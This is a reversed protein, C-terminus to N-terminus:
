DHPKEAYDLLPSGHQNASEKFRGDRADYMLEVDGPKGLAYHHRSKAVRILSNGNAQRHVVIVQDPKNYWHSSDSIDYASPIPYRGDKDKRMKAPHAVVMVHVNFRRAFRKFAKIAKGTYQTLSLMNQDYVHDIENWPDIVIMKAGNRFVAAGMRDTLWAIDFWEDSEDDPVIFSFNEQLWDDGEALQVESIDRFSKQHYLTQLSRRHETQPPQEFSAFCVHWGHQSAMNFALNNVFTTKGHSPIGTVVSLDGTRLRLHAALEIIGCRLSEQEALPPLDHLRYLGDIKVYQARAMTERVGREGWALFTDNLDKCGKPYKVWMCRHKGLRLALDNMLNVGPADSDTVLIIQKVEPPIDCLYDYKPTERDGIQEAPAGDPVSVAVMGHQLAIMCDMEGETIVLPQQGLDQIADVNYFRKEGGAKQWFRKEGSITRTKCNVEVGDRFFPIEIADGGGSPASRWGMQVALEINIGRKTLIEIQNETLSRVALDVITATTSSETMSSEYASADSLRKADRTAAAHAPQSNSDKHM